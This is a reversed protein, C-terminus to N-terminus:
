RGAATAAAKVPAREQILLEAIQFDLPTDIDLAREVPVHVARVRGEFLGKSAMVYTPRSVYGVTTMDYVPPADQRRVV